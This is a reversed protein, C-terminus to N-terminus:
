AHPEGHRYEALRKNAEHRSGVFEVRVGAVFAVAAGIMRIAGSTSVAVGRTAGAKGFLRLLAVGSERVDTSYSNADLADIVFFRVSRGELATRAAEIVSQTQAGTVHGRFFVALVDETWWAVRDQRASHPQESSRGGMGPM